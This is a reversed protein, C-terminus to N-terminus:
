GAPIQCSKMTDASLMRWWRLGFASWTVGCVPAVVGPVDTAGEVVAGGPLPPPPAVVVGCGGACCCGCVFLCGCCCVGVGGACCVGVGPLLPPVPPAAGVPYAVPWLGCAM